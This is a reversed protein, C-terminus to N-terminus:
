ILSHMCCKLKRRADPMLSLLSVSAAGASEGFITVQNPNGGFNAINAKVWRLAELQDWLGWNGPAHKDATSL